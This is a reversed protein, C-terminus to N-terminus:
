VISYRKFLDTAELWAAHAKFAPFDDVKLVEPLMLQMFSWAVATTLAAQDPRESRSQRAAWRKYLETCAALLQGTVHEVWLLHLKEAPRLKHEYVIQVTKRV